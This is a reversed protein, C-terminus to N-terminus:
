NCSVLVTSITENVARDKAIVQIKYNFGASAVIFQDFGATKGGPALHIDMLLANTNLNTVHIHGEAIFKDDTINGRILIIDGASYVEGNSPSTLTIM